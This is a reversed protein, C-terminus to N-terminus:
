EHTKELSDLPNALQPALGERPAGSTGPTSGCGEPECVLPAQDFHEDEIPEHKRLREKLRAIRSQLSEYRHRVVDSEARTGALRMQETRLERMVEALKFHETAYQGQTAYLLESRSKM